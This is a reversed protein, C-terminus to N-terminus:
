TAQSSTERSLSRSASSTKETPPPERSCLTETLRTLAISSARSTPRASRVSDDAAGPPSAPALQGVTAIRMSRAPRRQPRREDLRELGDDPVREDRVRLQGRPLTVPFASPAAARWNLRAPGDEEVAVADSLSSTGSGASRDGPTAAARGLSTRARGPAAAAARRAARVRAEREDADGVLRGRGLPRDRELSSSATWSRTSSSSAGLAHSEVAEVEAHVVRVPPRPDARSQSQRLGAGPM